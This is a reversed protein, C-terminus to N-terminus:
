GISPIKGEAEQGERWRQGCVGCRYRRGISATKPLPVLQSLLLAAVRVLLPGAATEVNASGCVFCRASPEAPAGDAAPDLGLLERAREVESAPVRLALEGSGTGLTESSAFAPIGAAQLQARALGLEIASHYHAVTVLSGDM